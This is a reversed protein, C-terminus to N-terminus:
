ARIADCVLQAAARNMRFVEGELGYEAQSISTSNFTCTEILDAGAELYARHIGGIVDPRTLVLVDNDGKLDRPHHCFDKGRFDAEQLNHRQIQTGMAGDLILVRQQALEELALYSASKKQQM